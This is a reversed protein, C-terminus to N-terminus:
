INILGVQAIKPISATPSSITYSTPNAASYTPKATLVDHLLSDEEKKPVKINIIPLTTTQVQSSNATICAKIMQHMLQPVKLPLEAINNAKLVCHQAQRLGQLLVQSSNQDNTELFMFGLDIKHKDITRSYSNDDREQTLGDTIMLVLRHV